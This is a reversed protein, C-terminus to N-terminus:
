KYNKHINHGSDFTRKGPRHELFQFDLETVRFHVSSVEPILELIWDQMSWGCRIVNRLARLTGAFEICGRARSAAQLCFLWICFKILTKRAALGGPAPKRGRQDRM